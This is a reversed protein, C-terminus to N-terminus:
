KIQILALEISITSIIVGTIINPEQFYSPDNISYVITNAYLLSEPQQKVINHKNQPFFYNNKKLILHWTTGQKLSSFLVDVTNYYYYISTGCKFSCKQASLHQHGLVSNLLVLAVDGYYLYCNVFITCYCFWNLVSIGHFFCHYKCPKKYVYKTCNEKTFIHFQKWMESFFSFFQSSKERYHMLRM